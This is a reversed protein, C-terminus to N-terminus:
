DDKLSTHAGAETLIKDVLPNDTVAGSSDSLGSLLLDLERDQSRLSDIHDLWYGGPSEVTNSQAMLFIEGCNEMCDCFLEVKYGRNPNPLNIYWSTDTEQVQIEFSSVAESVDDGPDELEYVRLFLELDPNNEKVKTLDLSHIDWYAFAWFPDRLLLVIKTDSYIDPLEYVQENDGVVQKKFIDYKKGKLRMVDNNQLRELLREEEIDELYEILEDTDYEQAQKLGENKAAERLEELSLSEYWAIAM